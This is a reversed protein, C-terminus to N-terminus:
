LEYPPAKGWGFFSCEAMMSVPEGRQTIGCSIHFSQLIVIIVSLSIYQPAPEHLPRDGRPGDGQEPLPPDLHVPNELPDLSYKQM